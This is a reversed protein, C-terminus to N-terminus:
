VLGGERMWAWQRRVGEEFGTTPAYELEAASRKADAFTREVDGPQMPGREIRPEKGVVRGITAIMELLSVPSSGGLNWVRYGHGDIRDYAAVVGTVIDDVYTYDRSTTGDGFMRITEGRAVRLLFSHIALDPRQRPGFVTFFRLMAVPMGTLKWHAYGMLECARKTAAYPSIPESVDDTEGFPVRAGNGYVSSSSAVVIRACGARSAADLIVATGQVNARAYGVPDEISPRVGAKAALHIVGEPRVREFLERMAGADAIDGRVFTWMGARGSREVLSVNSAKVEASYFPDFNDVGVVPRGAAMLRQATWSGIFGAAGTVLIPEAM